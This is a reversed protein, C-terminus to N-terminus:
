DHASNRQRSPTVASELAALFANVAKHKYVSALKDFENQPLAFLLEEEIRMSDTLWEIGNWHEKRLAVLDMLARLPQAIFATLKGMPARDVGVMFHYHAIALPHFAFSGFDPTELRITKRGPSVSSTMFVAEPIWGHHALASEFSVFSGPVLGQAVAFPHLTNGRHRRGLAYTGRKLRLLSGDNLARNVLGYRRADSGGLLSGLQRESFIHDALGAAIIQDALSSM